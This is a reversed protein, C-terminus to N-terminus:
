KLNFAAKVVKVLKFHRSACEFYLEAETSKADLVSSPLLITSPLQKVPLQSCSELLVPDIDVKEKVKHLETGSVPSNTISTDGGPRVVAPACGAAVICAATM